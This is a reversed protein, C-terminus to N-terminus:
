AKVGATLRAALKTHTAQYYQYSNFAILAAGLGLLPIGNGGIALIGSGLLLLAVGTALAFLWQRKANLLTEDQLYAM